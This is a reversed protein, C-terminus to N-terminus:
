GPIIRYNFIFNYAVQDTGWNFPTIQAIADTAGSGDDEIIIRQWYDNAHKRAIGICDVIRYGTAPQVPVYFDDTNVNGGTRCVVSVVNGIKTWTGILTTGATAYDMHGSEIVGEGSARYVTGPGNAYTTGSYNIIRGQDITIDPTIANSQYINLDATGQNLYVAGNLETVGTINVNGTVGINGTVEVDGKAKIAYDAGAGSVGIAATYDIAQGVAINEGTNSVFFGTAPFPSAASTATQITQSAGVAIAVSDNANAGTSPTVPIFSTIELGNTYNNVSFGAALEPSAPFGKPNGTTTSYLHRFIKLKSNGGISGNQDIGTPNFASM